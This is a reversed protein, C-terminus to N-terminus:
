ATQGQKIRNMSRQLTERQDKLQAKEITLEKERADLEMSKRFNEEERTKISFERLSLGAEIDKKDSYAKEEVNKATQLHIKAENDRKDASILHNITIRENDEQRELSNKAKRNKEQIELEDAIIVEERQQLKKDWAVLTKEFEKLEGKKMEMDPKMRDFKEQLVRIKGTLSDFKKQEKAIEEGIAALTTIRYRELDQEIKSYTQRLNDVRTAIKIGEKIERETERAKLEQVKSKPLLKIV